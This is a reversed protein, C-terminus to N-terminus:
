CENKLRELKDLETRIKINTDIKKKRGRRNRIGLDFRKRKEAEEISHFEDKHDDLLDNLEGMRWSAYEQSVKADSHIWVRRDLFWILTKIVSNQIKVARKLKIIEQDTNNM